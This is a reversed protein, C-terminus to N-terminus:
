GCIKEPLLLSNYSVTAFVISKDDDTRSCVRDSELFQELKQTAIKTNKQMTLYKFWPNFFNVEPRNDATHLALRILGDTLLAISKIPKKWMCFGIRDLSGESNLFITENVYEGKHPNIISHYTGDLEEIVIAGDGIQGACLWGPFCIAISLTTSFLRHPIRESNAYDFIHKQGHTFADRLISEVHFADQSKYDKLKKEIFRLSQSVGLKAGDLSREATGAGDAIALILIGTPLLKYRVYDQCPTDNNKKHSVGQRSAKIVDWNLQFNQYIEDYM